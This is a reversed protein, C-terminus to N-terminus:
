RLKMGAVGLALNVGTQGQVSLPQLTLSRMSGGVLVKAGAGLGLSADASVGGYNGALEHHRRAKTAALVAWVMTTRGTVGIDLGLKTVSAEYHDPEGNGAPAFDCSYWKKSGLILGIGEGGVCTLTGIKVAAQASQAAGAIAFAALAIVASLKKRTM